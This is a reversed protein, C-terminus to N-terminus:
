RKAFDLGVVVIWRTAPLYSALPVSEHASTGLFAYDKFRVIPDILGACGLSMPGPIMVSDLMGQACPGAFKNHIKAVAAEAEDIDKGNGAQEQFPQCQAKESKSM